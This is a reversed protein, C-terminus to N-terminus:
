HDSVACDLRSYSPLDIAEQELNVLLAKSQDVLLPIVRSSESPHFSGSLVRQRNDSLFPDRAYEASM